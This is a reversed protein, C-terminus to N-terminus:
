TVTANGAGNGVLTRGFFSATGGSVNFTANGTDQGIRNWTAQNAADSSDAQRLTGGRLDYTGTGGVGLRLERGITDPATPGFVATGATQVITGTNGGGEGARIGNVQPIDAGIQATGGNNIIALDAPGPVQDPNWNTATSWDGTGDDWAIDVAPASLPSGLATAGAVLM